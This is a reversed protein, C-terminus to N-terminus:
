ADFNETTIFRPSSILSTMTTDLLCTYYQLDTSNLEEPRNLIIHLIGDKRELDFTSYKDKLKSFEEKFRYNM